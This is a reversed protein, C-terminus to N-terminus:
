FQAGFRILVLREFVMEAAFLFRPSRALCALLVCLTPQEFPGNELTGSDSM